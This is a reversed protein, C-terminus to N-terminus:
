HVVWYWVCGIIVWMLTGIAIGLTIGRAADSVAIEDDFNSM